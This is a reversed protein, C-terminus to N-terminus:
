AGPRSLNCRHCLLEAVVGGLLVATLVDVGFTVGFYPLVNIQEGFGALLDPIDLLTLLLGLYQRLV